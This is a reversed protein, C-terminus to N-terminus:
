RNTYLATHHRTRIGSGGGCETRVKLTSADFEIYFEITKLYAELNDKLMKRILEEAEEIPMYKSLKILSDRHTTIIEDKM